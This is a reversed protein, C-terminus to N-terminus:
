SGQPVLDGRPDGLDDPVSEPSRARGSRENSNNKRAPINKGPRRSFAPRTGTKFWALLWSPIQRGLDRLLIIAKWTLQRNSPLNYLTGDDHKGTRKYSKIYKGANLDALHQDLTSLCINIKHRDKLLILIKKRTPWCYTRGFHSMLSLFIQLIQIKTCRIKM